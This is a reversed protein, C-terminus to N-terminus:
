PVNATNPLVRAKQQIDTTAGYRPIGTSIPAILLTVLPSTPSVDNATRGSTVGRIVNTRVSNKWSTLSGLASYLYNSQYM